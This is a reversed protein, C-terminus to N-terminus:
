KKRSTRTRWDHMGDRDLSAWDLKLLRAINEELTLQTKESTEKNTCFLIESLAFYCEYATVPNSLTDAPVSLEFEEIIKRSARIPLGAMEVARKMAPVPYLLTTELLKTICDIGREFLAFLQDFQKAFEEVGVEGMHKLKLCDGLYMPNRRGLKMMPKLTTCLNGCDSTIFQICPMSEELLAMDMDAKRWAVSYAECLKKKQDPLAWTASTKSHSYNGEIFTHNPFQVNLQEEIVEVLEDQPLQTFGNGAGSHIAIIKNGRLIALGFKGSLWRWSQNIHDCVESCPMSSHIEANDQAREKLSSIANESLLFIGESTRLAMNSHNQADELDGAEGCVLHTFFSAVIDEPSAKGNEEDGEGYPIFPLSDSFAMDDDDFLSYPPTVDEEVGDGYPIVPVSDPSPIDDDEFVSYPLNPAVPEVKDINSTETAATSSKSICAATAECDEEGDGYPVVPLSDPSPTDDEEFVSYPPNPSTNGDEGESCIPDSPPFSIGALPIVEFCDVPLPMYSDNEAITTIGDIFEAMTAFPISCTERKILELIDM